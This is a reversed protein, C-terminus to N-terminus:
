DNICWIVIFSIISIVAIAASFGIWGWLYSVCILISSFLICGANIITTALKNVDLNDILKDIKENIEKDDNM